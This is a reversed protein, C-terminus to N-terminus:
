DFVFAQHTMCLFCNGQGFCGATGSPREKQRECGQVGWLVHGKGSDGASDHWVCATSLEEKATWSKPYLKHARPLFSGYARTAGTLHLPNIGSSSGAVLSPQVGVDCKELSPPFFMGQHYNCFILSDSLLFLDNNQPSEKGNGRRWFKSHHVSHLLRQGLAQEAQGSQLTWRLTQNGIEKAIIPFIVGEPLAASKELCWLFM